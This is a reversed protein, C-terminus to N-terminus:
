EPKMKNHILSFFYPKYLSCPHLFQVISRGLSRSRIIQVGNQIFCSLGHGLRYNVLYTFSCGRSESSNLIDSHWVGYIWAFAGKSINQILILFWYPLSSHYCSWLWGNIPINWSNRDRNWIYFWVFASKSINYILILLLYPWALIIAAVSHVM